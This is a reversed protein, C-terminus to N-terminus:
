FSGTTLVKKHLEPDLRRLARSFTALQDSNYLPVYKRLAIDMHGGPSYKIDDLRDALFLEAEEDITALAHPNPKNPIKVPNGVMREWASQLKHLAPNVDGDLLYDKSQKYVDDAERWAKRRSLVSSAAAQARRDMLKNFRDLKGRMAFNRGMRLLQAVNLARKEM